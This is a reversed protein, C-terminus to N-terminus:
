FKVNLMTASVGYDFENGGGLRKYGIYTGVNLELLDLIPLKIYDKAKILNYSLVGVLANDSAYGGELTVGKWSAVEITSLYKIKSDDLSYAIGQKMGPLKELITSIDITSETKDLAETVATEKATDQAYACSGLCLICMVLVMTKFNM